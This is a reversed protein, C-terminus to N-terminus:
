PASRPSGPAETLVTKSAGTGSISKSLCVYTCTIFVDESLCFRADWIYDHDCVYIYIYIYICYM